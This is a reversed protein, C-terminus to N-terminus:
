ATKALRSSRRPTSSRLDTVFKVWARAQELQKQTSQLYESATMTVTDAGRNKTPTMSNTYKSFHEVTPATPFVATPPTPFVSHFREELKEQEKDESEDVRQRKRAQQKRKTFPNEEDVKRAGYRSTRDGIKLDQQAILLMKDVETVSEYCALEREMAELAARAKVIQTPLSARKADREQIIKTNDFVFNPHTGKLNNLVYEYTETTMFTDIKTGENPQMSRANLTPNRRMFDQFREETTLPGKPASKFFSFM